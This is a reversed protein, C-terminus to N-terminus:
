FPAFWHVSFSCLRIECRLRPQENICCLKCRITHIHFILECPAGWPAIQFTYLLFLMFLSHTFSVFLVNPCFFQLAVKPHYLLLRQPLFHFSNTIGFVIISPLGPALLLPDVLLLISGLSFFLSATFQLSDHSAFHQFSSQM